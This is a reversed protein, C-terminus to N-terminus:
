CTTSHSGEVPIIESIKRVGPGLKAPDSVTLLWPSLDSDQYRFWEERGGFEPLDDPHIARGRFDYPAYGPGGGLAVGIDGSVWVLHRKMDVRVDWVSMFHETLRGVALVGEYGARSAQAFCQLAANPSSPPQCLRTFGLNLWARASGTYSAVVQEFLAAAQEYKGMEFMSVGRCLLDNLRQEGSVPQPVERPYPHGTAQQYIKQLRSVIEPVDPRSEPDQRFCRQLLRALMAPMPPISLDEPGEELYMELVEPAVVGSVWMREGMFMELVSLGWSWIDTRRTLNEGAAQEPSCYAPTMGGPSISEEGPKQVRALGFGAVKVVGDPTMMVNHPKVNQHVVNQQHVYGLGWAFQIAVDLMRELAKGPGSDYLRRERIWDALSGGEVLEAFVRPIRGLMRVYHCTVIHPHLGLDMWTEAEGTFDEVGGARRLAKANPSKVALDINWGQHHVRYVKGFGGEGLTGRVEYLDLITDGKHWEAPVDGATAFRRGPGGVDPTPTPVAQSEPETYRQPPVSIPHLTGEPTSSEEFLTPVGADRRTPAPHSPPLSGESPGGCRHCLVVDPNAPIFERGCRICYYTEPEGVNRATKGM